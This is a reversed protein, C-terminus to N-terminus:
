FFRELSSCRPGGNLWIIVEDVTEGVPPESVSFLQRCLDYESIPILGFYMGGIDFNVNPPSKVQYAPLRNTSSHHLHTISYGVLRRMAESGTPAMAVM